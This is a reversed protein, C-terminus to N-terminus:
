NAAERQRQLDRQRKQEELYMRMDAELAAEKQKKEELNLLAMARKEEASYVQNEKRMRVANM